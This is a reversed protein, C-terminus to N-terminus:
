PTMVEVCDLRLRHDAEIRITNAGPRLPVPLYGVSWGGALNVARFQGADRGNVAVRLRPPEARQLPSAWAHRIALAHPGGGPVSLTLEVTLEAPSAAALHAGGSATEDAVTKGGAASGAECEVRQRPPDGGPLPITQDPPVPPGFFPAGDKWTFPQLRVLRNFGAGRFKAAHYIIWDERDDPSRTFGAHGPAIVGNGGAFVAAPHKRWSCPDLLDDDARAELRGLCYRSTWAGSASYLLHVTGDRVIAEPGENVNPRSNTEWGWEPRSILVRPGSITLPDSMPAIYLVQEIDQDGPWGSWVFYLRGAAEFATGDIAWHDDGPPAIKGRFTFTGEFPDAAPNELAFMRHNENKGDDAAFYVYWRGRLFHLEPAWIDRSAPGTPEPRWLVKREGAALGSLTKARVVEVSGGTTYTLYYVGNHRIVWPDAGNDVLVNYFDRVPEAASLGPSPGGLLAGLLALALCRGRPSAPRSTRASNTMAVM